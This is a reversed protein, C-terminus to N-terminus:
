KNSNKYKQVCIELIKSTAGCIAGITLSAMVSVRVYPILTILSGVIGWGCTRFIVALTNSAINKMKSFKGTKTSPTEPTNLKEVSSVTNLNNASTAYSFNSNCIGFVTFM